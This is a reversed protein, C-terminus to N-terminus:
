KVECFLSLGLTREKIFTHKMNASVMSTISSKPPLVPVSIGLPGYRDRLTIRLGEFESYRHRVGVIDRGVQKMLIRYTLFSKSAGLMGGAVKELNTEPDECWIQMQQQTFSDLWENIETSSEM